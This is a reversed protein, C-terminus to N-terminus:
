SGGADADLLDLLSGQGPGQMLDHDPPLEVRPDAYPNADLVADALHGGWMFMITYDTVTGGHERVVDARIREWLWHGLYAAVSTDTEYGSSNIENFYGWADAPRWRDAFDPWGARYDLLNASLYAATDVTTMYCGPCRTPQSRYHESMMPLWRPGHPRASHNDERVDHHIMVFVGHPNFPEEDDSCEQEEPPPCSAAPPGVPEPPVAPCEAPWTELRYRVPLTLHLNLWRGEGVEVMGERRDIATITVVEDDHGLVAGIDSPRQPGIRRWVQGVGILVTIDPWISDAYGRARDWPMGVELVIRDAAAEVLQARRQSGVITDVDPAPDTM